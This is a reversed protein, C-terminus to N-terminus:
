PAWHNVLHLSLKKKQHSEAWACLILRVQQLSGWLPQIRVSLLRSCVFSLYSKCCEYNSKKKLFFLTNNIAMTKKELLDDLYHDTDTNTLDRGIHIKWSQCLFQNSPLSIPLWFLGIVLIHLRYTKATFNIYQHLVNLFFLFEVM